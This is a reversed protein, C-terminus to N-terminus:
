APAGQMTDLPVRRPASGMPWFWVVAVQCLLLVVAGGYYSWRIAGQAGASVAGPAYGSLALVFAFGATGGAMGVKTALSVGASLLGENRSGFQAEHFDVTEAIMTFAATITISTALCAAIYITLFLAPQAETLPLGAFLVAAIALM